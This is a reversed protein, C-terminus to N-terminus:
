SEPRTTTGSEIQVGEQGHNTYLSEMTISPRASDNRDSIGPNMLPVVLEKIVHRSMSDKRIKRKYVCGLLAAVLCILIVIVSMVIWELGSEDVASVSAEKGPITCLIQDIDVLNNPIRTDYLTCATFADYIDDNVLGWDFSFSICEPHELCTEYCETKSQNGYQDSCSTLGCGYIDNLKTEISISGNPCDTPTPPSTPHATMTDLCTLM